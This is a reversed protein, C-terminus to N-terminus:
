PHDASSEHFYREIRMDAAYEDKLEDMRKMHAQRAHAALADMDRWMEILLLEDGDEASLYYAYRINGDEARCAAVIGEARLKELFSERMGPRCRFIVHFVLM